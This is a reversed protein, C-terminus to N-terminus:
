ALVLRIGRSEVARRFEPDLDRGSVVTEVRDLPSVSVMADKGFKTHDAVVIVRRSADIMKRITGVILSNSDSLGNASIGGVGLFLIDASVGSLMQEAIPGIQAGTRPYLYGGTLTVDVAKVDWFVQALPVSNTIVHLTRAALHRAVEAVTSGGGLMVTQGDAALAAAALGIRAKEEHQVTARRRFDLAEDRSQLSLAGGHVRRLVGEDELEMLDRRITSDSVGLKRCLEDASVFEQRAFLQM